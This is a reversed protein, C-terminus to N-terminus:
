QRGRQNYLMGGAPASPDVTGPRLAVQVERGAVSLESAKLEVSKAQLFEVALRNPSEWKLNVGYASENRVAGYLLAAPSGNPKGATPVVHIEYGFSTTAGGNTEVLVAEFRGEPSPVRAVEDESASPAIVLLLVLLIVPFAVVVAAFALVWKVFRPLRM